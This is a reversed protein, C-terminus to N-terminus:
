RHIVFSFVRQDRDGAIIVTMTGNIRKGASGPPAIGQCSAVRVSFRYHGLVPVRRGLVRASCVVRVSSANTSVSSSITFIRGAHVGGPTKVAPLGIRVTPPPPPAPPAPLGSLPYTWFGTDPADDRAVVVNGGFELGLAYFNFGATNGLESRNIKIEFTQVALQTISIASFSIPDFASGNWKLFGFTYDSGRMRLVYDTGDNPSGTARNRDADFYLGIFSDENLNAANAISMTITITGGTDNDFVFSTLDPANGADGAPDAFTAPSAGAQTVGLLLVAGLATLLAWRRM